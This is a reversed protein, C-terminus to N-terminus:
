RGGSRATWADLLPNAAISRRDGDATVAMGVGDTGPTSPATTTPEVGAQTARAALLQRWYAFTTQYSAGDEVPYVLTEFEDSVFRPGLRTQECALYSDAATAIADTFADRDSRTVLVPVDYGDAYTALSALTRAQLTEADAEGLTDDARYQADVAPAVILSPTAPADDRATWHQRDGAATAAARLSRNVAAPLDRVAGYHQYATFGRAVHIRDLLRQSPAIRALTTTTAHGDADVWFAPGDHTLLHDLVLSQLVPVGRGGDVDLLTVGTDLSPLLMGDAAPTAQDALSQNEDAARTPRTVTLQNASTNDEM